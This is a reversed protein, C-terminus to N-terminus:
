TITSPQLWSKYMNVKKIVIIITLLQWLQPSYFIVHYFFSYRRFVERSLIVNNCISKLINYKLGVGGGAWADWWGGVWVWGVRNKDNEKREKKKFFFVNKPWKLGKKESTGEFTYHGQFDNIFIKM